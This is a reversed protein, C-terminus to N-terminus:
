YGTFPSCRHECRSEITAPQHLAASGGPQQEEGSGTM